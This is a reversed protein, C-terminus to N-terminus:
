EEEDDEESDDDEYDEDDEDYFLNLLSEIKEYEALDKKYNEAEHSVVFNDAYSELYTFVDGIRDDDMDALDDLGKVNKLLDTVDDIVYKYDEQIEKYEETHIDKVYDACERTDALIKKLTDVLLQDLEEDTM